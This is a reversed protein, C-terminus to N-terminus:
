KLEEIEKDLQVIQQEMKELFQEDKKLEALYLNHNKVATQYQKELKKLYLRMTPPFLLADELDAITRDVWLDIPIEKKIAKKAIKDIESKELTTFEKLAEIAFKRCNKDVSQVVEYCILKLEQDHSALSLVSSIEGLLSTKQLYTMNESTNM